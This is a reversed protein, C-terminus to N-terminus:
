WGFWQKWSKWFGKGNQGSEQGDNGSTEDTDEEQSESHSKDVSSSEANEQEKHSHQHHNHQNYHASEQNWNSTMQSSPGEDDNDSQQSSRHRAWLEGGEFWTEPDLAPAASAEPYAYPDRPIISGDRRFLGADYQQFAHAEPDPMPQPNRANIQRSLLIKSNAARRVKAAYVKRAALARAALAQEYAYPDPEPIADRIYLDHTSGWAFTFPALLPVLLLAKPAM